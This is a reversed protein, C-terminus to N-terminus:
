SVSPSFRRFCDRIDDDRDEECGKECALTVIIAKAAGWLTICAGVPVTVGVSSAGIGVVASSCTIALGVKFCDARCEDFTDNARKICGQLSSGRSLGLPDYDNPGQNGVFAYLNLEEEWKARRDARLRIAGPENIPDRNIWRGTDPSYYRYGYYFLETEADFYKTSFRFPNADAAPGSARISEGFPGYEYIAAVTADASDILGTVNGNGDYAPYFVDNGVHNRIALLGGVGGAGELTGSLDLGWLYSKEVTGGDDLEAVLNWGHYHFNREEVADWQWLADDWIQVKKQLRRGQWDYAFDIRIRELFEDLEPRTEMAVLRNEADWEYTWRGDKLLNGDDDYIFIEPDAPLFVEGTLESVVDEGNPGASNRVGVVRIEEQAAQGDNDIAAERQFYGGEQRTANELNVTVIAEPHAHGMIDVAGPIERELIQNSM